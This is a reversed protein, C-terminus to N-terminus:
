RAANGGARFGVRVDKLKGRDLVVQHLAIPAFEWACATDDVQEAVIYGGGVVVYGIAVVLADHDTEGTERKTAGALAIGASAKVLGDGVVVNPVQTLANCIIEAPHVKRAVTGGSIQCVIVFNM